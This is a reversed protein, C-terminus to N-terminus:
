MGDAGNLLATKIDTILAPNGVVLEGGEIRELILSEIYLEIDRQLSSNGLSISQLSLFKRRIGRSFSGRGSLFLRTNNTQSVLKYLIDFLDNREQKEFEDIGDIILFCTELKKIKTCLVDLLKTSAAGPSLAEKLLKM